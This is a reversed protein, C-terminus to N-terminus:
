TQYVPNGVKDPLSWGSLLLPSPLRSTLLFPTHSFTGDRRSAIERGGTGESVPNGKASHLPPTWPSPTNYDRGGLKYCIVCGGSIPFASDLPRVCVCVCVCM